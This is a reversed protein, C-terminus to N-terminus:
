FDYCVIYDAYENWGNATKYVEISATPVYIQRHSSTSYFMYGGGSPPTTPKCYVKTLSTCNSFAWDGISTISNPITVVTLSECTNFAYNGISAVSNGITVSSLSVCNNFAHNGISIVSDSIIATILSTCEFFVTNGISTVGNGMTISQLTNCNYFAYDGISTVDGDFKIVGKGNEYTNSVINAGFTALATAYNNGDGYYPTVIAGDSSTYWIENNAPSVLAAEGKEFDYGAIYSAYEKWHTKVMYTCISAMPVYIKPGSANAYFMSRGGTPPTTAKCYVEKLSTCCDFACDEISTIGNGITVRKLSKLDYFASNGIRIVGNGIKVDELSNCGEFAGNDVSTVSDPITISTLSSCSDFAAAEISTVSDPITITTLSTCSSFAYRGISTVDNPITYHTLGCGIAFSELVGNDILCCGDSSAFKGYFAKLSPCCDLAYEDIEIVGNPITISTLSMCEEFAGNCIKTVVSDFRIIGKGNEYTHSVITAGFADIQEDEEIGLEVIQGDTSTYWIENNAPMPTGPNITAVGEYVNDDLSWEKISFSAVLGNSPASITVEIKHQTGATFTIDTAFSYEKGNIKVSVLNTDSSVTQPVIMARYYAGTNWPTIETASGTATAIGTALNITASNKINCIKVEVDAAALEAASYGDGAKIYVLANSLLHETTITVASKTPAVGACKGWLFDSAWYDAEASQDTNVSFPYASVDTPNGYPYYAYFDAKTSADKWYLEEDARWDTSLTFCANNVHNETSTLTGATSGNYNVVYLGVQDSSEFATDNARSKEFNIKIPLRDVLQEDQSADNTCGILLAVLAFLSFRKM